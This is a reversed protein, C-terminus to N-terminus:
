GCRAEGVQSEGAVIETAPWTGSFVHRTSGTIALGDGELWAEVTGRGEPFFTVRRTGREGFLVLAAAYMGTGCAKTFTEVGREFTQVHWGAEARRLFTVNTGQPFAALDARIRPALERFRNPDMGELIVFQPNGVEVRYGSVLHDGGRWNLPRYDRVPLFLIPDPDLRYAFEQGETRVRGAPAIRGRRALLALAARTGNLCFSHSGDPDLHGLETLEPRVSRLVMIGDAGIGHHRDCLEAVSKPDPEHALLVFDNGCAEIKDFADDREIRDSPSSTM